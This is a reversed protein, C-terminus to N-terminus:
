FFTEAGQLGIELIGEWPFAYVVGVGGGLIRIIFWPTTRHLESWPVLLSISQAEKYGMPSPYSM